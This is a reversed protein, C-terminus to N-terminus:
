KHRSMFLLANANDRDDKTVCGESGKVRSAYTLNEIVKDFDDDVAEQTSVFDPRIVPRRERPVNRMMVSHVAPVIDVEDEEVFEEEDVNDDNDYGERDSDGAEVHEPRTCSM